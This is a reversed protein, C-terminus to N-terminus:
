AQRTEDKAQILLERLQKRARSLQSKSTSESIGLQAAIEKHSLDEFM